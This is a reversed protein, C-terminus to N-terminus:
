RRSRSGGTAPRGPRARSGGPWRSRRPSRPCRRSRRRRASATTPTRNLGLQGDRRRLPRQLTGALRPFRKKVRDYEEPLVIRVCKAGESSLGRGIALRWARRRWREYAAAEAADFPSPLPLASRQRERGYARRLQRSITRGRTDTAYPYPPSRRRSEGRVLVPRGRVGQVAAAARQRGAVLHAYSDHARLSLKEPASRTSPTSTSSASGSAPPPSATATPTSSSRGNGCTPSASTTGPTASAAGGPLALERHGDVEPRRVPRGPPRLPVRHQPPVVVLRPRAPVPPRRRLLRSQQRRGAPPARRFPGCGAPPPGLFHPTLLIGGASAELAGPLEVMPATLYTDPDLYVAQDADELLRQLLLPKVATAFEVLDYSM